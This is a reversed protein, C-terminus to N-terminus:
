IRTCSKERERERQTDRDRERERDRERVRTIKTIHLYTDDANVADLGREDVCSLAVTFWFVVVVVVVVVVKRLIV